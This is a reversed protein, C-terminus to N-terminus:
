LKFLCLSLAMALMGTVAGITVFRDSPDYRHATPLLERLSIYVMMGAVLGFLVGYALSSETSAIVLWGFLAGVPETMGSLFAWLFGKMRSKSSYYVPLAVCIGEPINHLAIAVAVAIGLKTDGIAAVFTALGEPFNHIGIALATMLGMKELKKKQVEELPGGLETDREIISHVFDQNWSGVECNSSSSTAKSAGDELRDLADSSDPGTQYRMKTELGEPLKCCDQHGGPSLAAVVLELLVCMLVGAFFCGTAAAYGSGEQMSGEFGVVAKQFIEVFSVYLMVGASVGLSAALVKPNAYQTCFTFLAGLCTCLGALTVMLFAIGVDGNSLAMRRPLFACYAGETGGELGEDAWGDAEGILLVNCRPDM